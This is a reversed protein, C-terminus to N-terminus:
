CIERDTKGAAAKRRDQVREICCRKCTTRLEIRGCAHRRKIYFESVPLQRDCRSCVLAQSDTRSHGRWVAYRGNALAPRLFPFADM